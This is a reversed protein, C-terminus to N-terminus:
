FYLNLGFGYERKRPYRNSDINLSLPDSGSSFEPDYGKYDTFTMLNNGYAYVTARKMFIKKIIRSPIEYSLKVNRLRIYSADELYFSNPMLSNHESIVPIPYLAEDGPTTWMHAIAAPSPTTGDQYFRNRRAEAYNYISGGFSYYFSVFLNFNRYFLNTSLGGYFDPQACALYQRSYSNIYGNQTDPDASGKNLEFDIDGGKLVSGDAAKKQKVQDMPYDEGNLTYKQLVGNDFVPTLREWDPSFANSEDYAFIGLSRYGYFEGLRHGEQVYIAESTGKYFPIGDAIKTIVSNNTSINFDVSWRWKKRKLIDYNISFELGENTMEGINKRITLFGTEEPLNTKNLLKDTYKKYYDVVIRMRNNMMSLDLGLNFQSTEEWSLNNYALNSAAIGSVGEYIYNPSYLQYADYNGIEQNGTIGYSIRFKGDRVFPKMWGMFTEDSFRWGASASPFLGWQRGSGFRSSGDYRLNASALYKSKYDYTLRGFFSAMSHESMRTYTNKADFVSAANVTYIMDSAYNWGTFYLNEQHWEQFSCGIMGAVHHHNDFTNKYSLYNENAWDYQLVTNDRGTSIESSSLQYEPRYYQYRYTNYFVQLSSNLQWNKNFDFIFYQYLSGQYQQTKDTDDLAIAYPNRRSLINPVYTGDPNFIAWYSIRELVQNLVGSESIGKKDRYSMQIKSGVTLLRSPKYETNTRFTFRDYSSNVIIGKESLYGASIYYKFLDSAGSTSINIEKRDATRCLLDHLDIDQNNFFALSDAIVYGGTIGRERSLRIRQSDYYIREEANAKPLARALTSFSELYRIDVKPKNKEGQKTTILFVGNASRSGYIAASAADKLIEISQIDEPNLIDIDESVVGDVVYLPKVGGEFTSTGRVRVDASEGPAGSGSTISVGAAQGQLADFINIPIKQGIEEASISAIAGTVDRKRLSGYGIVIVEDLERITEEMLVNLVKGTVPIEVTNYGMYSFSLVANRSPVTLSYKGNLDTVTGTSSKVLKVTVGILPDKNRDTVVGSVTLQQVQSFTETWYVVFMLCFCLITKKM